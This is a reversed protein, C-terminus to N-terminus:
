ATGNASPGNASLKPGAAVIQAAVEKSVFGEGSAYRCCAFGAELVSHQVEPSSHVGPAASQKWRTCWWEWQSCRADWADIDSTSGCVAALLM